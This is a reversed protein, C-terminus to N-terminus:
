PTSVLPPFPEPLTKRKIDTEIKRLKNGRFTLVLQHQAYKGYGPKITFMYTWLNDSFPDDMVPNGLIFRVQSKTMGPKLRQVQKASVINGQQINLKHVRLYSCGSLLLAPLILLLIYKKM